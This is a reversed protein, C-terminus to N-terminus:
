RAAAKSSTPFSRHAALAPRRDASLATGGHWVPLAKVVLNPEPVEGSSERRLLAAARCHVNVAQTTMCRTTRCAPQGDERVCCVRFVLVVCLVTPCAM